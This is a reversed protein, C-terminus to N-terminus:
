ETENSSEEGEEGESEKPVRPWPFWLLPKGYVSDWNTVGNEDMYTVITIKKSPYYAIVMDWKTPPSLKADDWSPVDIQAIGNAIEVLKNYLRELIGTLTSSEYDSEIKTIYDRVASKFKETEIAKM